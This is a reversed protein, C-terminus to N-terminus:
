AGASEVVNLGKKKRMKNRLLKISETKNEVLDWREIEIGREKESGILSATFDISLEVHLQM